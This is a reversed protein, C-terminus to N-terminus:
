YRAEVIWAGAEEARPLSLTDICRSPDPTGVIPSESLYRTLVPHDTRQERSVYLEPILFRTYFAHRVAKM